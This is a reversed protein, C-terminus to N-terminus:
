EVILRVFSASAERVHGVFRDSARVSRILWTPIAKSALM